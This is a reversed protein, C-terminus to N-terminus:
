KVYKVLSIEFTKGDDWTAIFVTQSDRKILSCGSLGEIYCNIAGSDAGIFVGKYLKGKEYPMTEEVDDPWDSQYSLTIEGSNSKTHHIEVYSESAEFKYKGDVLTPIQRSKIFMGLLLGFLLSVIVAAVMMTKLKKM